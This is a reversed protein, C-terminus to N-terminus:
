PAGSHVPWETANQGGCFALAPWHMLHGSPNRPLPAQPSSAKLGALPAAEGELPTLFCTLLSLPGLAQAAQGRSPLLNRFGMQFPGAM